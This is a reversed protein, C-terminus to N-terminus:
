QGVDTVPQRLVEAFVDCVAQEVRNAPPRAAADDALAPLAKRDLKGNPTLPLSEVMRFVAPVMHRPLSEIAHRRLAAPTLTTTSPVVYAVLRAAATLKNVVIVAVQTVEEHRRLVSEIEGLEVRFGRLKLQDDVRGVFVLEGDARWRVVDGTRYMRSGPA